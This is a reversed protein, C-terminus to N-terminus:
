LDNYGRICASILTRADAEDWQEPNSGFLSVIGNQCMFDALSSDRLNTLVAALRSRYTGERYSADPVNYALCEIFYSPAETQLWGLQAVRNRLNKLVRVMPKYHGACCDDANKAFGNDIHERPYNVIDRDTDRNRFFIGETWRSADKYLRYTQCPVVDAKLRGQGAAIEICKKRRTVSTGFRARLAAELAQVHQDFMVTAPSFGQKAISQEVPSLHSMEYTFTSRLEVVIDVDSDGRVNTSNRYSGQLYIDLDAGGLRLKVDDLCASVTEYTAAAMTNAGPNSWTTLQQESIPM